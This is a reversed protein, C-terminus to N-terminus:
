NSLRVALFFPTASQTPLGSCSLHIATEVAYRNLEIVTIKCEIETLRSVGWNLFFTGTIPSKSRTLNEMKRPSFHNIRVVGFLAELCCCIGGELRNLCGALGCRFRNNWYVFGHELEIM